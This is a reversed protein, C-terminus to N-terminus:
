LCLERKSLSLAAPSGLAPVKAGARGASRLGPHGHRRPEGGAAHQASKQPGRPGPDARRSVKKRQERLAALKTKIEDVSANDNQLADTLAQAEPSGGRGGPRPGGGANETRERRGGGNGGGGNAEDRRPRPGGGGMLGGFRTALAERQKVEVKELLPQIVSWEDDSAKLATKIREEM